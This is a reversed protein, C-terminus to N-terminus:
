NPRSRTNWLEVAGAHTEDEGAGVDEAVPGDAGCNGCHGMYFVDDNNVWVKEVESCFPCWSMNSLKPNTPLRTPM